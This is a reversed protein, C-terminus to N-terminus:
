AVAEMDATRDDRMAGIRGLLIDEPSVQVISVTAFSIM